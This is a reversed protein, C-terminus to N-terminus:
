NVSEDVKIRKAEEQATSSSSPVPSGEHPRKVGTTVPGEKEIQAEPTESVVDSDNKEEKGTLKVIIATMNDCGTGDGGTDSALCAHFM